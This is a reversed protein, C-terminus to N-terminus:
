ISFLFPGTLFVFQKKYTETIKQTKKKKKKKRKKKKKNRKQKKKKRNKKKGGETFFDVIKLSSRPSVGAFKKQPCKRQTEIVHPFYM